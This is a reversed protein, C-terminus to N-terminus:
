MEEIEILRVSNEVRSNKGYGVRDWGIQIGM